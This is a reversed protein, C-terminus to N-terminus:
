ETVQGGLSGASSYAAHPAFFAVSNYGWYNTLGATVLHPESVFHHVPLLEVTTVGLRVLHDVVAPNALGAYTGRQHEPVAPHRMTLGRVHAEYVVTDTWPVRPASDGGWDFGDDGVVVSLPVHPRSDGPDRRTDDGPESLLPRVHGFVSPDYRLDGTVARAYPDLLLKAPNFRRGALPDWPGYVRFGYRQGPGIGPIRGHWVDFTRDRLVVREESGREDVLCVDVREAEPAWLAVNTGEADVTAGLPSWRGPWPVSDDAPLM